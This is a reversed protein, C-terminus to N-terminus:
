QPGADTGPTKLAKFFCWVLATVWYLLTWSVAAAMMIPPSLTFWSVVLVVILSVIWGPIRNQLSVYMQQFM